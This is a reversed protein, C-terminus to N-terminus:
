STMKMPVHSAPADGGPLTGVSALAGPWALRDNIVTPPEAEGHHVWGWGTSGFDDDCLFLRAAAPWRGAAVAHEQAQLMQGLLAFCGELRRVDGEAQGPLRSWIRQVFLGSGPGCVFVRVATSQLGHGAVGAWARECSPEALWDRVAGQLTIGERWGGAAFAQPGVRELRQALAAPLPPRPLEAEDWFRGWDENMTTTEMM